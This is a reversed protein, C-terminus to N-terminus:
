QEEGAHSNEVEFWGDQLETDKPVLVIKYGLVRLMGNLVDTSFNGRNLRNALANPAVAVKEALDINRTGTKGMLVRIIENTKM